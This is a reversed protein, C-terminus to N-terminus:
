FYRERLSAVTQRRLAGGEPRRVAWRAFRQLLNALRRVLVPCPWRRGRFDQRWCSEPPSHIRYRAAERRLCRRLDLATRALPALRQRTRLYEAPEQVAQHASIAERPQSRPVKRPPPSKARVCARQPSRQATPSNRRLM